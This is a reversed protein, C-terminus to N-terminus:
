NITYYDPHQSIDQALELLSEKHIMSYDKILERVIEVDSSRAFRESTRKLMMLHAKEKKTLIFGLLKDKEISSPLQKQSKKM